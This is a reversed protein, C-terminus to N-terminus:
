GVKRGFGCVSRLRYAKAHKSGSKAHGTFIAATRGANAFGMRGTVCSAGAPVAATMLGVVVAPVLLVQTVRRRCHHVQVDIM